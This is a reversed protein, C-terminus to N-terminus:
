IFKLIGARKQPVTLYHWDNEGIEGIWANALMDTIVTQPGGAEVLLVNIDPDETLRSAVISGASGAGVIIYDYTSNWQNRNAVENHLLQRQLTIISVTILQVSLSPSPMKENNLKNNSHFNLKMEYQSKTHNVKNKATKIL